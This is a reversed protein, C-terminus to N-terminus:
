QLAARLRRAHHARRLNNQLRAPACHRHQQQRRGRHLIAVSERGAHAEHPFRTRPIEAVLPEASVSEARVFEDKADRAGVVPEAFEFGRALAAQVDARQARRQIGRAERDEGRERVVHARFIQRRMRNAPTREIRHKEIAM